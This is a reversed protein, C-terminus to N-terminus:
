NGSVSLPRVSEKRGEGIEPPMPFPMITMSGPEGRGAESMHYSVDLSM